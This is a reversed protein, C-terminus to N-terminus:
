KEFVVASQWCQKRQLGTSRLAAPVFFLPSAFSFFQTASMQDSAFSNRASKTINRQSRDIFGGTKKKISLALV